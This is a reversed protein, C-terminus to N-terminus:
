RLSILIDLVYKLLLSQRGNVNPPSEADWNSDCGMTDVPADWQSRMTKIRNLQEMWNEPEWKPKKTESPQELEEKIQAIKSSIKASQVTNQASAKLVTKPREEDKVDIEVHEEKIFYKSMRNEKDEDTAVELAVSRNSNKTTRDVFNM